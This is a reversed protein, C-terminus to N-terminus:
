FILLVIILLVILMVAAIVSIIMRKKRSSLEERVEAMHLIFEESCAGTINMVKLKAFYEENWPKPAKQFNFDPFVNDGYKIKLNDIRSAASDKGTKGDIIDNVLLNVEDYFDAM